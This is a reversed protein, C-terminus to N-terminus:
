ASAAVAPRAQASLESELARWDARAGIRALVAYLGFRIRFLFLLKGPLRSRMLTLKGRQVERFGLAAGPDVPRVGEALVPAFFGRLLDRVYAAAKEKRPWTAGLAEFAGAMGEDDGDRVAHALRVFAAVTPRDFERVCGFDYVVIRGDPTFAYNGPHPDAHFWGTRYLTGFYFDFLARGAADREAQGPDRALWGDLSLGPQWTTTLVQPGTWAAHVAPVRIVPHDAYWAGFRRQRQGELAYDCEELLATRLEELNGEMTARGGGPVFLGAFVPGVSAVKFDARIATDIGPHRIKVAVETGDPLRGRHVQGISAVSVPRASLTALLSEACEGLDARVAARLEDPEAPQSQTQLVALIDRVEPPMTPDIYALIQGAKMALGKLKGLRKVLAELTARDLDALGGDKRGHFRGSLMGFGMSAATGLLRRTRGFGGTPLEEGSADLLSAVLRNVRDDRDDRDDRDHPEHTTM